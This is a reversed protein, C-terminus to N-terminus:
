ASDTLFHDNFLTQTRAALTKKKLCFVAYSISVHSSNLRTSKSRPARVQRPGALVGARVLVGLTAGPCRGFREGRRVPGGGPEIWIPLADHLSLPYLSTPPAAHLFFTYGNNRDQSCEACVCHESSA